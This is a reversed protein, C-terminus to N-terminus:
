CSRARSEVLSCLDDLDAFDGTRTLRVVPVRDALASLVDLDRARDAPRLAYPVYVNDVLAVLGDRRSMSTADVRDGVDLLMVARLPVEDDNTTKAALFRKDWNPTLHPLEGHRAASDPWLKVFPLGRLVLTQGGRSTLASVDESVLTHGRQVLAASLTSKGIGSPGVLAVAVGAVDVTTAHLVVIQRRRLLFGLIPGVLYTVADEVAFHPPWSCRVRDAAASVWFRTEDPYCWLTGGDVEYVTLAADGICTSFAIPADVGRDPLAAALEVWVDASDRRAPPLPLEGLAGDARLVLGCIEYDRATM